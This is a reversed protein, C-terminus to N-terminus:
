KWAEPIRKATTAVERASLLRQVRELCSDLDFPKTIVAIGPAERLFLQATVIASAVGDLLGQRNAERLMWTGTHGPMAYDSLVLNYRAERLRNLGEEASAAEDVRHGEIELATVLM